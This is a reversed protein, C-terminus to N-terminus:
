GPGRCTSKRCSPRKSGASPGRRFRWTRRAPPAWGRRRRTWGSPPPWGKELVSPDDKGISNVGHQSWEAYSVPPGEAGGAHPVLGGPKSRTQFRELIALQERGAAQAVGAGVAVEAVGGVGLSVGDGIEGVDTVHAADHRQGPGPAHRCD